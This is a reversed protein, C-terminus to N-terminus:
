FDVLSGEDSSLSSDIFAKREWGLQDTEENSVEEVSVESEM